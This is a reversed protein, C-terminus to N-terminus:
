AGQANQKRGLKRDIERKCQAIVQKRTTGTVERTVRGVSSSKKRPDIIWRWRFRSVEIVEFEINRHHM